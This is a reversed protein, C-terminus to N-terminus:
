EDTKKYLELDDCTMEYEKGRLVEILDKRGGGSLEGRGAERRDGSMEGRM